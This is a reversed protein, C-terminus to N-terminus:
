VMEKRGKEGKWEGEEVAEAVLEERGEGGGAGRRRRDTEAKVREVEELRSLEKAFPSRARLRAGFAFLVFPIASLGTALAATLIGANIVGLNTYM